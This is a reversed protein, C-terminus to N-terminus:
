KSIVIIRGTKLSIRVPKKNLFEKLRLREVVYNPLEAKITVGNVDFLILSSNPKEIIEKLVGEFINEEIGRRLPKGERVVMVDRPHVYVKVKGTHQEFTKIIGLDTEIVNGNAYGEFVNSYGLFEAVFENKPNFFVDEKDGLQLIRGENMVCIKDALAYAEEFDHTVLIVSLRENEQVEKFESLVGEKTSIDLGRFAEDLAIVEPNAALARAIAVRQQEGGSLSKAERDLLHEIRLMRAIRRVEEFSINRGGFRINEEVSM